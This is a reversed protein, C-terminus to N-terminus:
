PKKGQAAVVVELSKRAEAITCTIPKDEAVAHLFERDEAAFMDDRDTAIEEIQWKGSMAQCVSVTCFEWRAFEVIIVGATGILEIQRRRPRQFFDLHVSAVCRDQFDVLIEAVDPAAIGIDSYTGSFAHIARVPQGAYWIALDIDHMLDFAGGRQASFLDRYDPRVDPLHEGMLARVSVLRGIQGADLYKKARRLGDHYRFCLGVMVKKGRADALAALEEIGDLADSLPKESFVHAGARIAQTAMPMHMEPPTCIWITDPADRLATDFSDYLKVSPTQAQMADRQARIPDCARIDAVGLRELVRAHRKGISGCGVILISM